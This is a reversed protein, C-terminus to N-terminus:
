LCSDCLLLLVLLLWRCVLPEGRESIKMLSMMRQHDSQNNPAGNRALTISCSPQEHGARCCTPRCTTACCLLSAAAERSMLGAGTQAQRKSARERAGFAIIMGLLQGSSSASSTAQTDM